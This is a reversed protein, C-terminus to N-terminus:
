QDYYKEEAQDIAYDIVNAHAPVRTGEYFVDLVEWHLQGDPEYSLELIVNFDGVITEVLEDYLYRLNSNM